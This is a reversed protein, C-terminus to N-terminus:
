DYHREEPCLWEDYFWKLAKEAFHYKREMINGIVSGIAVCIIVGLISSM